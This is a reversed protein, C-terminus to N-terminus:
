LGLEAASSHGVGDSTSAYCSSSTLTEQRRLHPSLPLTRSYKTACSTRIIMLAAASQAPRVTISTILPKSRAHHPSHPRPSSQALTPATNSLPGISTLSPNAPATSTSRSEYISALVNMTKNYINEFCYRIDHYKTPSQSIYLISGIM